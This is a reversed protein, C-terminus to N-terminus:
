LSEADVELSRLRAFYLIVLAGPLAALISQAPIM